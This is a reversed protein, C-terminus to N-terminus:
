AARRDACLLDTHKSEWRVEGSARVSELWRPGYRRSRLLVALWPAYQLEILRAYHDLGRPPETAAIRAGKAGSLFRTWWECVPWRSRNTDNGNPERFTIRERLDAAIAASGREIYAEVLANAQKGKATVEVRIWPGPEYDVLKHRAAAQEQAKDYIVVRMDGYRGGFAIKHGIVSGDRPRLFPTPAVTRFRTCCHGQSVNRAIVATDLIGIKEDFAWDVRAFNAGSVRLDRFVEPWGWEASFQLERELQRCGQGTLEACVRNGADDMLIEIKDRRHMRTYGMKGGNMIRWDRGFTKEAEELASPHHPFTCRLYDISCTTDTVGTISPPM